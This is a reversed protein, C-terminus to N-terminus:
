LNKDTNGSKDEVAKDAVEPANEEELKEAQDYIHKEFSHSKNPFLIKRVIGPALVSVPNVKTKAHKLPGKMKYNAAFVGEGSKGILIEGIVPIKGLFRNIGHMPVVTGQIDIIDEDLNVVGKATLGLSSGSTSLDDLGLIKNKFQYDGKTRKFIIGQNQLTSSLGDISLINIMKALAPVNGKLRYDKLEYSGKYHHTNNPAKGTIVLTGDKMSSYIESTQLLYGLNKFESYFYHNNDEKSIKAKLSADYDGVASLDLDEFYGDKFTGEMKFDNLTLRNPFRLKDIHINLHYEADKKNNKSFSDKRRSLAEYDLLEGDINVQYVGKKDKQISVILNSDGIRFSSLDIYDLQKTAPDMMMRGQVDLDDASLIFDAHRILGPEYVMKISGTGKTKAPNQYHFELLDVRANTLDFDAEITKLGNKMEQIELKLDMPGAYREKVAPLINELSEATFSGDVKLKRFVDDEPKFYEQWEFIAPAKNIESSGKIEMKTKNVKLNLKANKLDIGETIKEFEGNEITSELNIDIDKINLKSILPFKLKLNLSADGKVKESSLNYKELLNLPNGEIFQFANRAKGYLSLDIDIHQPGKNMDSILVSGKALDIGNAQGKDIYINFDEHTFEIHGNLATAKPMPNFYDTSLDRFQINGNVQNLKLKNDEKLLSIAINAHEAKGEPINKLVWNRASKALEKPWFLHLGAVDFDKLDASVDINDLNTGDVAASMNGSLPVDNIKVKFDEVLLKSEWGIYMFEASLDSLILPKEFFHNATLLGQGNSFSFNTVLGKSKLNYQFGLRYDATLDIKDISTNEKIYKPIWPLESLSFNDFRNDMIFHDNPKHYDFSGTLPLKKTLSEFILEYQAIVHDDIHAITANIDKLDVHINNETDIYSVSSNNFEIQSIYQYRNILDELENMVYEPSIQIPPLEDTIDTKPASEVDSFGVRVHQNDNKEITLHGQYLNLKRPIFRGKFLDIYSFQVGLREVSTLKNNQEDTINLGILMFEFPLVGEGKGLNLAKLTFNYDPSIDSIHKEFKDALFNLPIPGENLRHSIFVVTLSGLILSSVILGIFSKLLTKFM